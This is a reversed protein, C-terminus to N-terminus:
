TSWAHMAGTGTSASGASPRLPVRAFDHKSHTGSTYEAATPTLEHQINTGDESSVALWGSPMEVVVIFVAAGGGGGVHFGWISIVHM